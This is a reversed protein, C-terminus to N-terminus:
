LGERSIHFNELVAHDGQTQRCLFFTPLADCVKRIYPVVNTGTHTATQMPVLYIIRAFKNKNKKLVIILAMISAGWQWGHVTAARPDPVGRLDRFYPMNNTPNKKKGLPRAIGSISNM